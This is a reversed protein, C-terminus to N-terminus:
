HSNAKVFSVGAIAYFHHQKSDYCVNSMRCSRHCGATENLEERRAHCVVSLM